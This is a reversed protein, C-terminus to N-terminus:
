RFSARVEDPDHGYRECLEYARTRGVAFVEMVAVWRPGKRRGRAIKIAHSLNQLDAQDRARFNRQREANSKPM